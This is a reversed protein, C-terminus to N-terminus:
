ALTHRNFDKYILYKAPKKGIAGFWQPCYPGMWIFDGAQTPYWSDGLRYIGGGELMLLGHEMYHIEVQALSAGPQYTMTNCAFDFRASDPLLARVELDPDGNLATPKVDQERGVFFEPNPETELPLFPKDIVALRAKTKATITHPHETPLYAYSGATLQHLKRQSPEQLTLKGELVYVLRQTPGESLTGNPELEVTMQTFAAGAQPAVHVIAFGGTIGPMPTRIFTDPSLLLHDRKNSSTTHGLHHM